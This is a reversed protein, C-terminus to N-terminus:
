AEDDEDLSKFIEPLEVYIPTGAVEFRQVPQAPADSRIVFGARKSEDIIWINPVGMTLYDDIKEVLESATDSPSLIEIVILPPEVLTQPWRGRPGVVVDPLRVRTSSVRTRAEVAVRIGWEKRHNAFWQSLFSQLAGHATMVMPREKLEGNLYELDPEYTSALYEELSVLTTTAM